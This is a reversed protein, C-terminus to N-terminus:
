LSNRWAAARPPVPSPHPIKLKQKQPKKTTKKGKLGFNQTSFVAGLALYIYLTTSVPPWLTIWDQLRIGKTAAKTQM